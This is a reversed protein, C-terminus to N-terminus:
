KKRGDDDPNFDWSTFEGEKLADWVVRRTRQSLIVQETISDFDWRAHAEAEFKSFAEKAKAM